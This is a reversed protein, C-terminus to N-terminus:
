KRWESLGQKICECILRIIGFGIVLTLLLEFLHAFTPYCLLYFLWALMSPAGIFWISLLIARRSNRGM